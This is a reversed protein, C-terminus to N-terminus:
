TSLLFIQVLFCIGYGGSLLLCLGLGVMVRVGVDFVCLGLGLM